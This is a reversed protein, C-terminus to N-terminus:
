QLVLADNMIRPLKVEYLKQGKIERKDTCLRYELYTDSPKFKQELLFDYYNKCFWMLM